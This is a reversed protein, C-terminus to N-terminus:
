KQYSRFENAATRAADDLDTRAIIEDLIRLLKARETGKADNILRNLMWLTHATPKRNLSIQLREEYGKKYFTEVFHVCPGPVGFHVDPHQEMLRLIAEVADLGDKAKELKGCVEYQIEEFSGSDVSQKLRNLLQRTNSTM